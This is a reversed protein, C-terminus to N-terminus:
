ARTFRQPQLAGSVHPVVKLDAKHIIPQVYQLLPLV